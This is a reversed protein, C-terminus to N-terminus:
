QKLQKAKNITNAIAKQNQQHRQYDTIQKQQRKLAESGKHSRLWLNWTRANIFCSVEDGDKIGKELAFRVEDITMRSYKNILDEYLLSSMMVIQKADPKQGLMLYCKSLIDVCDNKLGKLDTNYRSWIQNDKNM